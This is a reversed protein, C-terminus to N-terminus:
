ELLMDILSELWTINRERLLVVGCDGETYGLTGWGIGARDALIKAREDGVYHVIDNPEITM